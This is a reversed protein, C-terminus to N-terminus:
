RALPELLLRSRDRQAPPGFDFVSRREPREARLRERLIRTESQAVARSRGALVVGYAHEAKDPSVFGRLVDLRVEEPDRELPDM